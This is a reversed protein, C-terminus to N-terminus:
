SKSFKEIIEKVDNQDMKTTKALERGTSHEVIASAGAFIFIGLSMAGVFGAIGEFFSCSLAAVAVCVLGFKGILELFKNKRPRNIAFELSKVVGTPTQRTTRIVFPSPIGREREEAM